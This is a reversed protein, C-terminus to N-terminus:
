TARISSVQLKSTHRTENSFQTFIRKYIKPDEVRADNPVNEGTFQSENM